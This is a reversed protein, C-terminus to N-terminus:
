SMDSPPIFNVRCSILRKGPLSLLFFHLSFNIHSFITNYSRLVIFTVAKHFFACPLSLHFFNDLLALGVYPQLTRSSSYRSPHCSCIANRIYRLTSIYIIFTSKFNFAQLLPSMLSLFCSVLFFHFSPVYISFVYLKSCYISSFFVYPSLFPL